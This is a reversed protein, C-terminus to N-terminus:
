KKGDGGCVRCRGGNCNTCTVNVYGDGAWQNYRGSGGCNNCRGDGGCTWCKDAFLSGGGGSDDDSESGSTEPAVRGAHASKCGPDELYFEPFTYLILATQSSGYPKVTLKVHYQGGSKLYVWDIDENKGTYEFTHHTGESDSKQDMKKLQYRPELLLDLVEQIVEKEDERHILCTVYHTYGWEDQTYETDLFSALDPLEASHPNVQPETEASVSTETQVSEAEVTERTTEPMAATAQLQPEPDERNGTLLLVMALLAGVCIAACIVPLLIGKQKKDPLEHGGAQKTGCQPCFVSKEDIEKGCKWCYM